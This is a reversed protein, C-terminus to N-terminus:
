QWTEGSRATSICARRGRLWSRTPTLEHASSTVGVIRGSQRDMSQLLLMTLLWHGLYASTFATDFGDDNWTQEEFELYAANLILARIPPIESSAVRSNIDAAAFRVVDLRSLALSIIDHPSAKHSSSPPACGRPALHMVSLM